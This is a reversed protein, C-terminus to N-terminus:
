CSPNFHFLRDARNMVGFHSCRILQIQFLVNPGTRIKVTLSPVDFSRAMKRGILNRRSSVSGLHHSFKMVWSSKKTQAEVLGERLAEAM